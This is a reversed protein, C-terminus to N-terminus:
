DKYKHSLTYAFGLQLPLFNVSKLINVRTWAVSAVAETGERCARGVEHESSMVRRLWRYDLIGSKVVFQFDWYRGGFDGDAIVVSERVSISSTCRGQMWPSCNHVIFLNRAHLGSLAASMIVIIVVFGCIFTTCNWSGRWKENVMSLEIYIFGRRWCSPLSPLRCPDERSRGLELGEWYKWLWGKNPSM